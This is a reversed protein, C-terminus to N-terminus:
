RDHAQHQWVCPCAARNHHCGRDSSHPGAIKNRQDLSPWRSRTATHATRSLPRGAFRLARGAAGSVCASPVRRCTSRAGSLLPDPRYISHLARLAEHRPRGPVGLGLRLCRLGRGPCLGEHCAQQAKQADAAPQIARCARVGKVSAPTRAMLLCCAREKGKGLWEVGDGVSPLRAFARPCCPCLEAQRSAQRRLLTM